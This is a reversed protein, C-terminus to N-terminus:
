FNPVGKEMVKVDDIYVDPDKVVLDVHVGAEVVGGFTHNSGFAIHITGYVKEDELVVGTIRAKDNTGIGFEGLMRGPGDGLVDLLKEAAEGEAHVLRGDEITLYLPSDLKGMGAVSGDIKIRGAASGEVPAIYGEGSPLNGSEGPNIYMGTSAIGRRGEISFVLEEGDKVIKVRKGKALFDTVKETLEKVQLYDATIAGELFMDPTIGPMTAVRADAAAAEKRARTHTLSHETVCIVVNARKMAEGIAEPPEQGSKQREKMVTLISEAGLQQGAQYLARALEVKSDDAVILLSEGSKLGLCQQLLKSSVQISRDTMDCCEGEEM